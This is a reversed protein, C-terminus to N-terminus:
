HELVGDLAPDTAIRRAQVVLLGGQMGTELHLGSNSPMLSVAADETVIVHLPVGNLDGPAWIVRPMKSTALPPIAAAEAAELQDLLELAMIRSVSRPLEEICARRAKPDLPLLASM